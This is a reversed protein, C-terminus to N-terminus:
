RTQYKEGTELFYNMSREWFKVADLFTDETFNDVWANGDVTLGTYTYSIDVNSTTEDKPTVAVKLVCIRSGPTFRTFEILHNEKDQRSIIWVTDVEGDGPTSFICGEEALGSKSYIMEYKWGDLWEAERVPCLLPFVIKPPANITQRYNRIIRRATFDSRKSNDM